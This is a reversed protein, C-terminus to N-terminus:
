GRRAHIISLRDGSAVSCYQVILGSAVYSQLFLGMLVHREM